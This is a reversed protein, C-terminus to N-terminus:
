HREMTGSFTAQYLKSASLYKYSEYELLGGWWEGDIYESYPVSTPISSESTYNQTIMKPIYTGSSSDAEINNERISISSNVTSVILIVGVTLITICTAVITCRFLNTKKSKRFM